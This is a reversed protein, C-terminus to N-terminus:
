VRDRIIVEFHHEGAVPSPQPRVKVHPVVAPAHTYIYLDIGDQQTLLRPERLASILYPRVHQTWRAGPDYARNVSDTESHMVVTELSPTYISNEFVWRHVRISAEILAEPWPNDATFDDYMFDAGPAWTSFGEHEIHVFLTNPNAGGLSLTPKNVRGAAWAPDFIGVHQIIRGGRSISFHASKGQWVGDQAWKVMTSQYGQMVHSMVGQPAMQGPAIGYGGYEPTPAQEVGPMWGHKEAM